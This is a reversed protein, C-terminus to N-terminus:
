NTSACVEHLETQAVKMRQVYKQLLRIRVRAKLLTLPKQRAAVFYDKVLVLRRFLM